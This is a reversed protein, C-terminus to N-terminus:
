AELQSAPSAIERGVDTRFQKGAFQIREAVAYARDAAAAVTEGLATVGLVRGGSTIIEDGAKRTGAHFVVLDDEDREPLGIITKGTVVADPYGASALVVCTAAEKRWELDISELKGHATAHLLDVVDTALRMILPQTEPDGFRCNFELVKPGGPTLMLGIYLVGRYSLQERILADMMPVLIQSEIQRMMPPTLLDSPCFAGMGGTNPGVNHDGLRKYDQAPDLICMTRGDLVALLSVEEGELREEVVITSGADGLSRKVLMNEAAILADAPDKCVIAGKGKALGSAKVVLAEDRTSIFDHARQFDSFIRGDATPIAYQRMFLKSFAKESELRAAAKSPGFIPLKAEAFADVIGAALPDEPGVITLDIQERRAVTLVRAIDCPDGSVNTAVRSTGANGPLCLLKEVQRSRTIGYCLAHERGGGGLVLVRM